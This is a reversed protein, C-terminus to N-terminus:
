LVILPQPYSKRPAFNLSRFKILLLRLLHLHKSTNIPTGSSSASHGFSNNEKPSGMVGSKAFNNSYTHWNLLDTREMTRKETNNGAPWTSSASIEDQLQCNEDFLYLAEDSNNLTGSYILDALLGPVSNDDTRELLFFGQAPIVNEETFFIKIQESKDLLQWGKLNIKENTINKFEIWEDSSSEKSGMWAIENILVKNRLLPAATIKLCVPGSNEKETEPKETEAKKEPEEENAKEGAEEEEATIEQAQQILQNGAEIIKTIKQALIDIEETIDDLKQGAENSNSLYETTPDSSLNEDLNTLETEIKNIQIDITKNEDLLEAYLDNATEQDTLLFTQTLSAGFPNNKDITSKIKNFIGTLADKTKKLGEKIDTLVDKSSNEVTQNTGDEKNKNSFKQSFNNLTWQIEKIKSKIPETLSREWWVLPKLGLDPVPEDFIIDVNPTGVWKYEGFEDKRATGQIKVIFPPLNNKLDHPAAVTSLSLKIPDTSYFNIETEGQKDNIPRYIIIYQFINQEKKGQVSYYDYQMAGAAVKIEKQMLWNMGYNVAKNISEKEFKEIAVSVDLNYLLRAIEVSNKVIKGSVEIPLDTLFYNLVEGNITSRLFIPAATEQPTSYGWSELNFKKTTFVQTLSRLLKRTNEQSLGLYNKLETPSIEEINQALIVKPWFFFGALFILLAASSAKKIFISM